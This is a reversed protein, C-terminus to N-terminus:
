AQNTNQKSTPIDFLSIRGEAKRIDLIAQHHYSSRVNSSYIPLYGINENNIEVVVADFDVNYVSELTKLQPSLKQTFHTNYKSTKFYDILMAEVIRTQEDISPKYAFVQKFHKQAADGRIEAKEGFNPATMASKHMEFNYLLIAVEKSPENKLIDALIQELTSHGNLRDIACDSTGKGIYLVELASLEKPVGQFLHIINSILVESVLNDEKDYILISKHPYDSVLIKGGFNEILGEPSKIKCTTEKAGQRFSIELVYQSGEAKLTDPLISVIPRCCIFYIMCGRVREILEKGVELIDNRDAFRYLFRDISSFKLLISSYYKTPKM